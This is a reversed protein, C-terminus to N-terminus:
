KRKSEMHTLTVALIRAEAAIYLAVEQAEAYKHSLCLDSAERCLREIAMLPQAYDVVVDTKVTEM